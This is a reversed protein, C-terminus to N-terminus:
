HRKIWAVTDCPLGEISPTMDVSRSEPTKLTSFVDGVVEQLRAQSDELKGIHTNEQISEFTQLFRLLKEEADQVLRTYQEDVM